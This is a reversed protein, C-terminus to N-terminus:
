SDDRARARELIREAVRRAREFDEPRVFVRDLGSLGGIGRYPADSADSEAMAPIGVSRLRGALLLADQVPFAGLEIPPGLESTLDAVDTRAAGSRWEGPEVDEGDVPREPQVPAPGPVLEAGDDACVTFGPRYEAGCVPCHGGVANLDDDDV